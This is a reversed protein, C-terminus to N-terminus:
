GRVLQVVVGQHYRLLICMTCKVIVYTTCERNLGDDDGYVFSELADIARRADESSNGVKAGCRAARDLSPARGRVRRAIPDDVDEDDDEDDTDITFTRDVVVAGVAAVVRPPALRARAIPRRIARATRPAHVRPTPPPPPPHASVVDTPSRRPPSRRRPHPTADTDADADVRARPPVLRVAVAVRAAVRDSSGLDSFLPIDPRSIAPRRNALPVNAVTTTLVINAGNSRTFISYKNFRLV